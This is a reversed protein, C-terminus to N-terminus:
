AIYGGRATQRSCVVITAVAPRFEVEPAICM